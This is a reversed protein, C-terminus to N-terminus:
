RMFCASERMCTHKVVLRRCLSCTNGCVDYIVLCIVWRRCQSFTMWRCPRSCDAGEGSCALMQIREGTTRQWPPHRGRSSPCFSRSLCQLCIYSSFTATSIGCVCASSAKMAGKGKARGERAMGGLRGRTRAAASATVLAKDSHLLLLSRPPPPPLLLLLAGAVRARVEVSVGRGGGGQLLVAREEQRGVKEGWDVEM